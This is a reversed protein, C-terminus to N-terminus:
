DKALLSAKNRCIENKHDGWWNGTDRVFHDPQPESFGLSYIRCGSATTGQSPPTRLNYSYCASFSGHVEIYDRKDAHQGSSPLGLEGRNIADGHPPPFSKSDLTAIVSLYGKSLIAKSAPEDDTIREALSAKAHVGGFIRWTDDPCRGVFAIDLKSQGIMGQIGLERIAIARQRPSLVVMRIGDIALRPNYIQVFATEFAQGSARKWSQENNGLSLYSRYIIHQWIDSPNADSCLGIGFVFTDSIAEFHRMSTLAQDLHQKISEHQSDSVNDVTVLVTQKGDTSRVAVQVM